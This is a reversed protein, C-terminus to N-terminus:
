WSGTAGGGGSFGGGFGGLGGPSAGNESVAEVTRRLLWVLALLLVIILGVAVWAWGRKGNRFLSVAIPILGGIAGVLAWKLWWPVLFVRGFRGMLARTGRIIGEAYEERRFCPLIKGNMVSMADKDRAHGYGAGLEIRAKRDRVAVLLLVGDNRPM